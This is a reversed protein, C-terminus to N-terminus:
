FILLLLIIVPIPIGLFWLLIAKGMTLAEWAHRGWARSNTAQQGVRRHM